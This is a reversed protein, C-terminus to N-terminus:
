FAVQSLWPEVQLAQAMGTRTTLPIQFAHHKSMHKAYMM